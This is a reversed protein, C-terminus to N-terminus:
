ELYTPTYTTNTRDCPTMPVVAGNNNIADICNKPGEEVIRTPNGSLRTRTWQWDTPHRSSLGNM